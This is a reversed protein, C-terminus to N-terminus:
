SSCRNVRERERRCVLSTLLELGDQALVLGVVKPVAEDGVPEVGGVGLEKRREPEVANADREVVVMHNVVLVRAHELLLPELVQVPHNLKHTTCPACPSSASCSFGQRCGLAGGLVDVGDDVEVGDWAALVLVPM